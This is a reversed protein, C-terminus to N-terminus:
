FQMKAGLTLISKPALQYGYLNQYVPLQWIVYGRLQSTIPFTVGPSVYLTNGGTDAPSANDGSDRGSIKGNLQLLPVVSGFGLYRLGLNASLVDGPRYEQYSHLPLQLSAQAFFDFDQNIKGFRFVGLLMDTTGTGLQLGRDLPAGAATGGNFNENTSGTPLKFGLQVGWHHESEFGQFRALLRVDGLGAATSTGDDVGVGGFGNTAHTRYIFPIQLNFGWNANPSYDVGTTIYTNHTYLEDEHGAVPWPNAVGTGSRMQDQNLSDYRVDYRLGTGSALGQAEWDTSLSCGCTSCASATPAFSLAAASLLLLSSIKMTPQKIM